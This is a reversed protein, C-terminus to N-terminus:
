GIAKAFGAEASPAGSWVSPPLTEMEESPAAAAAAEVAEVAGAEAEAEAEATATATAEAAEAAAAAALQIVPPVPPVGDAPAETPAPPAAPPPPPAPLRAPEKQKHPRRRHPLVHLYGAGVGCGLCGEGGWMRDPTILVERVAETGANYVFLRVPRNCNHVIIEGFDDPGDFLLDGVGIIYDNFADLGAASAPSNEYVELVHLTHKELAHTVDFRITIGLLGAGGWGDRPVLVTERTRLTHTNFVCLRMEEGKSEGIMRVFSGDDRDLRIGNAVVIYDLISNLGAEDGPSGPEVRHVRFGHERGVVDLMEQREAEVSPGIGMAEGGEAVQHVNRRNRSASGGGARLLHSHPVRASAVVFGRDRYLHLIPITSATM